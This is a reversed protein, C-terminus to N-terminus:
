KVKYAWKYDYHAGAPHIAIDKIKSTRLHAEAKQYLPIVGMEDMLIKEADILNTWRANEDSVNTTASETAQKDYDANSYKGRNYSNGTKFLEIFTIPDTYDGSWGGIVMDFDGKNSRDLRVSFPVPSVTVKVGELNEQIAGQIYEVTKKSSDTDSSLIDMELDKINLEKKAKEWYEKAKEKDYELSNGVEKAFDEKTEPNFSMEAPMLGTAAVSGDGLIQTALADRDISYSIAKRLNANRFPSKEDAQNVEMYYTSALKEINLEDNNAMQQALEGTLIADEIQGDEYLNLGTSAEKIVKVDIRDLKVKDADWYQDNKVYAWDQDTGPGDFDALVFPGNYVAKESTTAFDKGYKEVIAQNQPFYQKFALLYKFYPTPQELTIELEYDSVAKVGLEKKDMEGATIKTANKVPGFISAYESATAPDVTRQWAFVYDKATVPDGNSWKSEERLKLKWTLGDESVEALETAGAPTPQSELDLRYLGEYTNTLARAGIVDTALSPDATPMEQQEIVSFTQEEALETKEGETAKSGDTASDKDGSGCAVLSLTAVTVLGAYMMKKLKM